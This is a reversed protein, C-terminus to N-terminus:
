WKRVVLKITKDEGVEERVLRYGANKADNVIKRYAYQQTLRNFFDKRGELLMDDGVVDYRGDQTQRFGIPGFAAHALIQVPDGAGRMTIGSEQSLVQCDLHELCAILIDKDRLETRISVIRSM